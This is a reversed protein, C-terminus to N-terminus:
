NFPIDDSVEEADFEQSKQKPQDEAKRVKKALPKNSMNAFISKGPEIIIQETSDNKISLYAGKENTNLWVTIINEWKNDQPM